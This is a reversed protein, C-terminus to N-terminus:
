FGQRKKNNFKSLERYMRFVLGDLVHKEFIKEWYTDEGNIRKITDTLTCFNRLKIFKWM